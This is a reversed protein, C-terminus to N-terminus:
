NQLDIKKKLAGLSRWSTVAETTTQLSTLERSSPVKFSVGLDSTSLTTAISSGKNFPYVEVEPFSEPSWSFSMTDLSATTEAVVSNLSRRFCYKDLEVLRGISSTKSHIFTLYQRKRNCKNTPSSLKCIVGKCFSYTSSTSETKMRMRVVQTRSLATVPKINLLM